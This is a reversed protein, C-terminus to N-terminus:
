ASGTDSPEVRGVDIKRVTLGDAKSDAAKVGQFSPDKGQGMTNRISGYAFVSGQVPLGYPHGEKGSTKAIYSMMEGISMKALDIDDDMDKAITDPTNLGEDDASATKSDDDSLRRYEGLDGAAEFISGNKFDNEKQEATRDETTSEGDGLHGTPVPEPAPVPKTVAPKREALTGDPTWAKDHVPREVKVEAADAVTEKGPVEVEEGKSGPRFTRPGGTRPAYTVKEKPNKPAGRHGTQVPNINKRDSVAIPTEGVPEDEDEKPTRKMDVFLDTTVGPVSVGGDTPPESYARYAKNADECAKDMIRVADQEYGAKIEKNAKRRGEIMIDLTDLMNSYKVAEPHAALYTTSDMSTYGGSLGVLHNRYKQIGKDSGPDINQGLDNLTNLHRRLQKDLDKRYEQYLISDDGEDMYEERNADYMRRLAASVDTDDKGFRGSPDLGLAKMNLSRVKSMEGKSGVPNETDTSRLFHAADILRYADKKSLNQNALWQKLESKGTKAVNQFGNVFATLKDMTDKPQTTNWGYDKSISEMIAQRAAGVSGATQQDFRFGNRKKQEREMKGRYDLLYLAAEDRNRPKDYGNEKLWAEAEQKSEPVVEDEKKESGDPNLGLTAMLRDSLAGHREDKNFERAAQMRSDWSERILQARYSDRAGYRGKVTREPSRGLGVVGENVLRDRAEPPLYSLLLMLDFSDDDDLQGWTEPHEKRLRGLMSMGEDFTLDRYADPIAAAKEKAENVGEAAAKEKRNAQEKDWPTMSARDFELRAAAENMIADQQKRLDKVAKQYDKNGPDAKLALALKGLMSNIRALKEDQEPTFRVGTADDLRKEAPATTMERRNEVKEQDRDHKAARNLADMLQLIRYDNYTTEKNGDEDETTVALPTDETFRATEEAKEPNWRGGSQTERRANVGPTLAAPREYFEDMLFRPVGKEADPREDLWGMGARDLVGTGGNARSTEDLDAIIHAVNRLWRRHGKDAEENKRHKEDIKLAEELSAGNLMLERIRLADKVLGSSNYPLTGIVYPNAQYQQVMRKAHEDYKTPLKLPEGTVPDKKVIYRGDEDRVLRKMPKGNRDLRPKGDEDLVPDEELQYPIPRPIGDETFIDWLTDDRYALPRMRPTGDENRVIEYEGNDNVMLEPVKSYEGEVSPVPEIGGKENFRAYFTGPRFRMSNVDFGAKSKPARIRKRYGKGYSPNFTKGGGGYGGQNAVANMQGPTTGGYAKAIRAEIARDLRALVKAADTM